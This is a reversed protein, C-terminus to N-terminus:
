KDRLDTRLAAPILERRSDDKHRIVPVSQTPAINYRPIWDDDFPADFYEVM